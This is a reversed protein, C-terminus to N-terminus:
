LYQAIEAKSWDYLAKSLNEDMSDPSSVEVYCKGYSVKQFFLLYMAIFSCIPGKIRLQDAAVFLFPQRAWINFSNGLFEGGKLSSDFLGCITSLIGEEVQFALRGVFKGGLNEPLMGTDVWGPCVAVTRVHQGSASIRRQLEKAHLVQALKNNGYALERHMYDNIVSRAAAPSTSNPTLMEGSGLFHYSSAVNIVTGFDSTKSLIPLLLETLLFHGLYNTAFALDYGQASKMPLSLNRLPDGKVSVYHIGANNILAHLEKHGEQFTRAFSVVSNMDSTDIIGVELKGISNPYKAQIEGVVKELKADSRSAIIVTAGMEYLKSAIMKGLGNTSGTVIVTMKNLPVHKGKRSLVLEDVLASPYAPDKRCFIAASIAVIVAAIGVPLLLVTSM